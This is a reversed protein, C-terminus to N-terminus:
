GLELDVFLQIWDTMDVLKLIFNMPIFLYYISQEVTFDKLTIKKWNVPFCCCFLGTM